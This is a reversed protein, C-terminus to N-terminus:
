DSKAVLSRPQSGQNGREIEDVLRRTACSAAKLKAGEAYLTELLRKGDEGVFTVDTLDLFTRGNSSDAAVARWTRELEGVWPGTLRGELRLTTSNSTKIVTIRLM